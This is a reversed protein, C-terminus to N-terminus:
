NFQPEVVIFPKEPPAYVQLACVQTSCAVIRIGYAGLPDTIEAVTEGTSCKELGVFCDDLYMEGLPKGGLTSFDYATGGVPAIEGTPLVDDYNNVVLRERAPVRLRAQARAGSPLAFYPHWGIGLPLTETGSNRTTVRLAYVDRALSYEFTLEASSLWHGGFDGADLGAVVADATETRKHAVNQAARALIMGHMAYREAGPKKGGWNARLHVQRADVRTEIDRGDASLRGPIRNAFPILVAAGFSFSTNGSEDCDDNLTRVLQEILPCHLVDCEGVKPLRAQLQLTMMGRGPAIRARMFEPRTSDGGTPVELTIVPAGGIVFDEEAYGM